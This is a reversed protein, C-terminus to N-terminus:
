IFLRRGYGDTIPEGTPTTLLRAPNLAEAMRYALYASWGNPLSKTTAQTSWYAKLEPTMDQWEAAIGKFQDRTETQNPTPTRNGTPKGAGPLVVQAGRKTTRFQITGNGISGSAQNSFLPGRVKVM